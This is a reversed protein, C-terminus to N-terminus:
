DLADLEKYTTSSDFALSERAERLRKARLLLNIKHLLEVRGIPKAMFDNAGLRMAWIKDSAQETGSIVIIPIGKTADNKKIARTAQFGNMVPMVIDMLVLDPRQLKTLDVGQEGNYAAVTRYGEKELVNRLLHVQTKSDDIVLITANKDKPKLEGRADNEYQRRARSFMHRIPNRDM